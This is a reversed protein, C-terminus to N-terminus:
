DAQHWVLPQWQEAATKQADVTVGFAPQKALAQLRAPMHYDYADRLKTRSEKPLAEEATSQILTALRKPEVYLFQPATTSIVKSSEALNPYKKMGVSMARALLAENTSFYVAQNNFALQPNRSSDEEIPLERSIITFDGKSETKMKKAAQTEEEAKKEAQAIVPKAETIATELQEIRAKADAKRENLWTEQSQKIDDPLKADIKENNAQALSDKAYGLQAELQQLKRREGRLEVLHAQNTSVVWDYLQNLSTPNTNTTQRLAVFLPQTFDDSKDAYWCVAGTSAFENALVPKNVINSADVVKQVQAWDIPASACLAANAPVHTWIKPEYATLAVNAQSQWAKGDFDFRVARLSPVFAGYGQAFLRNSLMVTQKSNSVPQTKTTVQWESVVEARVAADDSLLRKILTEAQDDLSEGAQSAMVADSLLVMRGKHAAFVMKRHSSLSVQLVPIDDGGVSIRGIEHLQKDASLKLKALSQAVTALTDRQLSLAWYRVAHSDDHWMYLDAPADAINKLILDSWNLEHEFSIRRMAGQLSLWDEDQAYFYIFDETLLTKLLPVQLLDHPLLAFNESHVWVDPQALKIPNSNNQLTPIHFKYYAAVAAAIALPAAWWLKKRTFWSSSKTINSTAQVSSDHATTM